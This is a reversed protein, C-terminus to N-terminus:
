IGSPPWDDRVELGYKGPPSKTALVEIRPIADTGPGRVGPGHSSGWVSAILRGEEESLAGRESLPNPIGHWKESEVLYQILSRIYIDSIWMTSGPKPDRLFNSPIIGVDNYFSRVDEQSINEHGTLYDSVELGGPYEDVLAPGGILFYKLLRRPITRHVYWFQDRSVDPSGGSQLWEDYAGHEAGASIDGVLDQFKGAVIEFARVVADEDVDFKRIECKIKTAIEAPTMENLESIPIDCLEIVHGTDEIDEEYDERRERYDAAREQEAQSDDDDSGGAAEFLRQKSEVCRSLEEIIIRRLLKRTIKM